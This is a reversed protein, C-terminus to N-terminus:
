KKLSHLQKDLSAANFALIIDTYKTLFLEGKDSINVDFYNV